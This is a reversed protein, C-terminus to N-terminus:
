GLLVHEERASQSHEASDQVALSGADGALLFTSVACPAACAESKPRPAFYGMLHYWPGDLSINVGVSDAFCPAVASLQFCLSFICM